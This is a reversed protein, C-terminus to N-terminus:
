RINWLFKIWQTSRLDFKIHNYRIRLIEELGNRNKGSQSVTNSNFERGSPGLRLCVM